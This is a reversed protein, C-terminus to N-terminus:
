RKTLQIFAYSEPNQGVGVLEKLYSTVSKPDVNVSPGVTQRIQHYSIGFKWEPKPDKNGLSKSRYLADPITHSGSVLNIEKVESHLVLRVLFQAGLEVKNQALRSFMQVCLGLYICGDAKLLSGLRPISTSFFMDGAGKEDWYAPVFWFHDLCIQHIQGAISKLLPHELEIRMMDMCIHRKHRNSEGERNDLTYVPRNFLLETAVCRATDRRLQSTHSTETAIDEPRGYLGGYIMGLMLNIGNSEVGPSTQTVLVPSPPRKKADGTGAEKPSLNTKESDVAGLLESCADQCEGLPDTTAVNEAELKWEGSDVQAQYSKLVLMAIEKSFIATRIPHCHPSSVDYTLGIGRSCGPRRETFGMSICCWHEPDLCTVPRGNAAVVVRGDDERQLGVLGLQKSTRTSLSESILELVEQLSKKEELSGQIRSAGFRGGFGMIASLPKGLPWGDFLENVNSLVHQCFFPLKDGSNGLAQDCSLMEALSSVSEHFVDRNEATSNYKDVADLARRWWGALNGPLFNFVRIFSASSKFADHLEYQTQLMPRTTRWDNEERLRTIFELFSEMDAILPLRTNDGEHESLSWEMLIPVRVVEVLFSQFLLDLCHFFHTNIYTIGNRTKRMQGGGSSQLLYLHNPDYTRVPHTLPSRQIEMGLGHMYHKRKSGFIDSYNTLESGNGPLHYLPDSDILPGIHGSRDVNVQCMRSFSAISCVTVIQWNEDLTQCITDFKSLQMTGKENNPPLLRFPSETQGLSEVVEWEIEKLAKRRRRSPENTEALFPSNIFRYHEGDDYWKKFLTTEDFSMDDLLGFAKQFSANNPVAFKPRRKDRNDIVVHRYGGVRTKYELPVLRYLRHPKLLFRLNAYDLNPYITKYEEMIHVIERQSLAPQEGLALVRCCGYYFTQEENGHLRALTPDYMNKPFIDGAAFCVVPRGLECNVELAFNFSNNITQEHELFAGEGATKSNPGPPALGKISGNGGSRYLDFGERPENNLIRRMEAYPSKRRSTPLGLPLCNKEAMRVIIASSTDCNSRWATNHDKHLNMGFQRYITAAHFCTGIAQPQENNDGFYPGFPVDVVGGDKNPMRVVPILGDAALWDVMPRSTMMQAATKVSVVTKENPKPWIAEDTTRVIFAYKTLDCGLVKISRKKKKEVISFVDRFASTRTVSSAYRTDSSSTGLQRHYVDSTAGWVNMFQYHQSRGYVQPESIMSRDSLDDLIQKLGLSQLHHTERASSVLRKPQPPIWSSPLSDAGAVESGIQDDNVDEVRSAFTDELTMAYTLEPTCGEEIGEEGAGEDSAVDVEFGFYAESPICSNNTSIQQL